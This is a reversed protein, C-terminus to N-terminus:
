FHLKKVHMWMAPFLHTVPTIVGIFPTLQYAGRKTSSFMIQPNGTCSVQLQFAQFDIRFSCSCWRFWVKMKSNLLHSKGLLIPSFCTTKLNKGIMGPLPRKLNKKWWMWKKSLLHPYSSPKTTPCHEHVGRSYLEHTPSPEIGVRGKPFLAQQEIPCAPPKHLDGNQTCKACRSFTTTEVIAIKMGVQPFSGIQSINKLDTSFWWGTKMRTLWLWRKSFVEGQFVTSSDALVGRSFEHQPALYIPFLWWLFMGFLSIYKKQMFKGAGLLPHDGWFTLDGFGRSSSVHHQFLIEM